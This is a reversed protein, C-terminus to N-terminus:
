KSASASGSVAVVSASAHKKEASLPEPTSLDDNDDDSELGKGYYKAKTFSYVLPPKEYAAPDISLVSTVKSRGKDSPGRNMRRTYGVMETRAWLCGQTKSEKRDDYVSIVRCWGSSGARPPEPNIDAAFTSILHRVASGNRYTPEKQNSLDFTFWKTDTCPITVDDLRIYSDRIVFSFGKITFPRTM